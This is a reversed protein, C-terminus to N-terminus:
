EGEKVCNEDKPSYVSREGSEEIEDKPSDIGYEDLEEIKFNVGEVFKKYGNDRLERVKLKQSDPREFEIVGNKMVVEGLRVGLKGDGKEDPYNYGHFMIGFNLEAVDDYVGAEEGFKCAEVYGQCERTGLFIDRRGGSEIMRKAINHHKYESRDKALEPRNENWEFHASVQYEVDKLYTYHSLDNGKVAYKIPRIGKSETQIIKMVRVRDIVWVFTPKWYVSELIGKIAQYTPAQYSFKEGGPRTIIDSFLAYRGYTKFEVANRIKKEM